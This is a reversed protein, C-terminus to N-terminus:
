NVMGKKKKRRNVAMLGLVIAGLASGVANYVWVLSNVEEGFGNEKARLKRDYKGDGDEDIRLITEDSVKAVSDIETQKTIRINRFTRFDSYDGNEDMFGITYNMMGRGTGVIEIDYDTGEKLRLVKIRDDRESEESSQEFSLTGFNTRTNLRSEASNLIEGDYSVSVDVPCAIRVYIYKQGKIKDAVDGFFYKLEEASAVEYHCGESAIQEMLLQASSKNEELDQFFGLTYILIGEDKIENAFDVLEKGVKGHNPEGDSMLIIMKKKANSYDLLDYATQLGSEINTGGGADLTEVKEKLGKEDISFDSVLNAAEEYTIIGISADEKLVTEVFKVAAKKTEDIKTGEMSGSTDLVLVIDREESTKRKPIDEMEKEASEPIYEGWECLFPRSGSSLDDWEGIEIQYGEDGQLYTYMAGYDQGWADDPQSEGWNTYKFCEKNSWEWEGEFSSDTAGIWVEKNWSLVEDRENTIAANATVQALYEQVFQQEELTTITALYGQHNECFEKAQNWGQEDKFVYYYHGNFEEADTPVNEPAFTGAKKGFATVIRVKGIGLSQVKVTFSKTKKSDMGDTLLFSYKGEPLKLDTECSDVTFQDNYSTKKGEANQYTGAIKVSYNDYLLKNMDLVSLKADSRIIYDFGFETAILLNKQKGGKRIKINKEAELSQNFNDTVKIVYDGKPIELTLPERDVVTIEKKYDKKWFWGSHEKGSILVTYDDYLEGNKDIVSLTTEVSYTETESEQSKVGVEDFASSIFQKQEKSFGMIDATMEMNERLVMFTCNAPLSHLTQFWLQMLEKKSLGNSGSDASMLYAAHSIVTSNDHVVIENKVKSKDRWQKGDYKIPCKRRLPDEINRVSNEWDCKGGNYYAEVFEGFVDSYAEMIAGSEDVYDMASINREVGHTYEHGVVNLESSYEEKLNGRM